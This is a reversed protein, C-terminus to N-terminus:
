LLHWVDWSVFDFTTIARSRCKVETGKRVQECSHLVNQLIVPLLCHRRAQPVLAVLSFGEKLLLHYKRCNGILAPSNRGKGNSQVGDFRASDARSLQLTHDLFM